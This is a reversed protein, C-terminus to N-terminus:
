TINIYKGCVWQPNLKNVLYWDGQEAYITVVAGMQLKGNITASTSPEARCNLVTATVVGKKYQQQQTQTTKVPNLVANVASKFKAWENENVMMRPCDKGTIDYHRYLDNLTLNYKKLLYAALEVTNQYTKKFDGDSNVCMEIGILFYNPSYPKERIKEGTATYKSAGVHWAVEGDPICQIIKSDDVIYHASAVTKTTNFYDRNAKANAGKGTNATWHIVVGKLKKLKIKPRNHNVLLMQTIPLM